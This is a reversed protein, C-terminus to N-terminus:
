KTEKTPRTAWLAAAEADPLRTFGHIVCTCEDLTTADWVRPHRGWCMIASPYFRVNANFCYARQDCEVVRAMRAAAVLAPWHNPLM